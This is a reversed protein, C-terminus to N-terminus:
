KENQLILIIKASIKYKEEFQEKKKNIQIYSSIKELLNGKLNNSINIILNEKNFSNISSLDNTLFEETEIELEIDKINFIFRIFSILKNAIKRKM